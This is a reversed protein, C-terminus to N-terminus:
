IWGALCVKNDKGLTEKFLWSLIGGRFEGEGCAFGM